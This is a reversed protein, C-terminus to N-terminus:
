IESALAISIAIKDNTGSVFQQECAQQDGEERHPRLQRRAMPSGSASGAREIGRDSVHRPAPADTLSTTM